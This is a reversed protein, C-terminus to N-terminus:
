PAFDRRGTRPGNPRPVARRRCTASMAIVRKCRTREGRRDGCSNLGTQSPSWTARSLRELRQKTEAV